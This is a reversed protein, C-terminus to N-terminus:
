PTILRASSPEPDRRPTLCASGSGEGAAVQVRDRSAAAPEPLLAYLVDDIRAGQGAPLRGRLYGERRFGARELVRQSGTNTPNTGAILRAISTERFVWAAILRAARTAYGRGRWAPLMSYGIMAQGTGPEQYYVGIDGAIQGSAADLIVLDAREGALWWAGARACRLAVEERDPAIPPVSTAVVDPLTHLAHM